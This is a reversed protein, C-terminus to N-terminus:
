ESRRCRTTTEFEISHQPWRAKVDQAFKEIQGECLAIGDTAVQIHYPCAICAFSGRYPLNKSDSFEDCQWQSPNKVRKRTSRLARRCNESSPYTIQKVPKGSKDRYIMYRGNIDKELQPDHISQAVEACGSVVICLMVLLIFRPLHTKM